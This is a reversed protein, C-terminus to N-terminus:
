FPGDVTSILWRDDIVKCGDIATLTMAIHEKQSTLEDRAKALSTEGTDECDRVKNHEAIVEELLKTYGDEGKARDKPTKRGAAANDRQM